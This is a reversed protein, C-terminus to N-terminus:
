KTKQILRYFVFLGIITLSGIYIQTTINMKYQSDKNPNDEKNADNDEHKKTINKDTKVIIDDKSVLNDELILYENNSGPKIIVPLLDNNKEYYMTNIPIFGSKNINESPAPNVDVQKYEMIKDFSPLPRNALSSDNTKQKGNKKISSDYPSFTLYDM